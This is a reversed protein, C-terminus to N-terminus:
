LCGNGVVGARAYTSEPQQQATETADPESRLLGRASAPLGGRGAQALSSGGTVQCPNRALGGLDLAQTSLGTLSGSVDLPPTALQVVGSLGTPAAAQIVNFGFVGPQFVFPVDGGTFLSSGSALLTQVNITVLGGAANAAGTNAQIFGTLLLLTDASLTIDGGNGTLGLVSTTIQSNELTIRQGGHIVISGGNGLNASTTISSPDLFLQQTFDIQIDSAAVNGTSAATISANKLTINPASVSLTTPAIAGPDTVTADNRISLSGGNSLTISDNAAVTVNGTQGSSGASASAAISSGTGDVLLDVARVLVSGAAGSLFTSSSIQGEGLVSIKGNAQVNVSGANGSSLTSSTIQGGRANVKVNGTAVVDIRGANGTSGANAQSTIGTFLNSDRADILIGGGAVQVSGADGAGFTGSTVVGGGLISLEGSANILINSAAVNGASAATTTANTLTISPASVSLTTPVISGPDAVTADNRISLSGGNSLTISDKATVTVNGTQGSSGRSATAAISSSAGDVLLKGANVLVAGAHGAAQTGSSIAGGTIDINGAVVEVTGANGSSLTDSSILGGDLLALKSSAQVSVSGAKGSSLTSSTVQGGRTSITVDGTAVVKISGANGASGAQAQSSIGTFLDNARADIVIGGANVRVLGADGAGFTASTIVGGSFVSLERSTDIVINSAVVNGATAATISGDTLTIDPASVSLTTTVIAAPDAVTADNRISLSGGNSVTISDNASVTVNGTQGSSGSSATAAISSNAGDVLLKGANVLVAGAHGSLFTSSSIRGGNAISLRGTTRVSVQGANGEGQTESFIGSITGFGSNGQGDIDVSAAAVTVTGANGTFISSSSIQGANVLSLAGGTVVLVDSANGAPGRSESFIGTGIEGHGDIAISGASVNVPAADGVLVASSSIQGGRAISLRGPTQVLVLGAHGAGFTESFIGAFTPAGGDIDINGAAVTVTGANGSSLTDSSILGGGLLSLKGTTQVSVPGANGSSLTNTTVQGGRASITVDGTAVLNISGAHGTSGDQAQSSIGTFLDSTKADIVIGGANVRVPGADGAGFTASTIVGGSLVSLEGSANIEINSAAVNGASAATISGGNLTITPASVSLTTSVIAGPDAVTADNRISLSGRNSLTIRETASVTVNGTQGSSNRIAAAAISSDAGDVLVRAAAVRVSGAYGAAQTGSSIEGGGVVSVKGTAEVDVTGANGAAGYNVSSFIGGVVHGAGGPFAYSGSGDVVVDQARVRVTGANGSTFTSSDIVGGHKLTLSGTTVVDVQGANGTSGTGAQTSIGTFDLGGRADILISGAQVHVSGANGQSHTGSSVLGGQRIRLEGTASVDVRGANGTGGATTSSIATSAGGSGGDLNITAASVSVVGADGASSTGSSISGGFLVSLSGTVAVDVRGGDGTGSVAESLIGADQGRVLVSAAQVKVAGANGGDFTSSSIFGGNLVSVAATAIVEVNGAKGAGDYTDSLIGAYGLAQGDVILNAATVKVSGADGNAVTSSSITGGNLVSVDGTTVVTVSGANGSGATDSSITPLGTARGDVMVSGAHITVSGAGGSSKATSSIAATNLVSLNGTVTIDINGSRGNGGIASSVIGAPAYPADGILVTGAHVTIAGANAGALTTTSVYGNNRVTLSGPTTLEISGANGSSLPSESLIGAFSSYEGDILINAASAKVLGANGYSFTTSSVRSSGVGGLVSLNGTAVIDINGANGYSGRQADTAVAVASGGYGGITIDTARLKITGANGVYSASSLIQSGELVYIGQTASLSLDGAAGYGKSYSFVSAGGLLTINGASLSISGSNYLGSTGSTVSGGYYIKLDGAGQGLPGTFPMELAQRGVAAIRIDGAETAVAGGYHSSDGISIDGAVLSISQAGATSLHASLNPNANGLVNIAARTTGLFGFAEPAASSFTSTRGLDAHFNGGAFKVYNATSVHFAGPVYISAGPGFTVGAPNIFFFNPTAFNSILGLQGYIQSASGGTVRSIVNALGPTNTTFYAAQNTGINFTEFSHFLNGGVQKGISQPIVAVQGQTFRSALLTRASFGLSSDTKIQAHAGFGLLLTLALCIRRLRFSPARRKRQM